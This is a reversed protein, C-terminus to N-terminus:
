VDPQLRELVSLGEATVEVAAVEGKELEDGLLERILDGHACAAAPQEGLERLLALGEEADADDGLEHRYELPLGRERALPEVSEVCRLYPSTVVRALPRGALLGVLAEAQARGQEDLPRARDDGIWASSDGATAHRILLIM